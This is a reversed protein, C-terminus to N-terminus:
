IFLVFSGCCVKSLDTDSTSAREASEAQVKRRIQVEKEERGVSLKCRGQSRSRKSAYKRAKEEEKKMDEEELSQDEKRRQNRKEAGEAKKRKM